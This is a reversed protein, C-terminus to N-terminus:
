QALAVSAEAGDETADPRVAPLSAVYREISERSIRIVGGVRVAKIEGSRVLSYIKSAGLGLLDAVDSVSYFLPDLPTNLM